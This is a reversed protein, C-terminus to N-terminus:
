AVKKSKLKLPKSLETMSSNGWEDISMRQDGKIAETRERYAAIYARFLWAYYYLFGLGLAITAIIVYALLAADSFILSSSM